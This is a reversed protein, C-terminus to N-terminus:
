GMQLDCAAHSLKLAWKVTAVSCWSFIFNAYNYPDEEVRFGVCYNGNEQGNNSDSQVRLVLKTYKEM